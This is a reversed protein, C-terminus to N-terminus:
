FLRLAILLIVSAVLELPATGPQVDTAFTKSGGDIIILDESPTSIITSIVKAACDELECVGFRAQMRDNFVYTGPRVETVGKVKAAYPATPTSGVSIDRIPIGNKRLSQALEVMLEGEEWGAAAVDMTPKKNLM